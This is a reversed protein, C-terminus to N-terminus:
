AARRFRIQMITLALNILFTIGLLIIGLTLAVDFNGLEVETIIATTLTRTYWRINGGAIMIGGVESIAAGFAVIIATIIGGKTERIVMWAAQRETAGLSLARERVAKEVEAIASMSVGVIIPTVLIVQTIIMAVPTYLLSLFGLPGSRNFLLFIILGAVVPPLGMLTNMSTTVTAEILRSIIKKKSFRKFGLMAGLPIGIASGIAVSILSVQLSLVTISLIEWTSSAQSVKGNVSEGYTEQSLYWSLDEEQNLYGMKEALDTEWALPNFLVEGNNRFSKIIEQVDRSVLFAVLTLAGKYNVNPNKEPNVLILSYPNYLPPECEVLITLKKMQDRYLLWTARDVITYAGIEDAIRLLSGMGRNVEIYWPNISSAPMINISRWISLEVMHTGSRDARSVFKSKSEAIKHFAEMADKLGRIGAPDDIPGVIIFENYMLGIRHIGFGEKVFNLEQDRSHVLVVDAEGRRAIELAQGSGVSLVMVKIGYRGEFVPIITDLLGSDYVSTTTALRVIPKQAALWHHALLTSSLVIAVAVALVKLMRLM